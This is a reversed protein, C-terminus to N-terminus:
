ASLVFNDCFGADPELISVRINDFITLAIVVLRDQPSPSSLVQGYARFDRLLQLEAPAFM